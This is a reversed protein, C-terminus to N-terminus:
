TAGRLAMLGLVQVEMEARADRPKEAYGNVVRTGKAQQPKVIKYTKRVKELDCAQALWEDAFEVKTGEIAGTLHEEVSEKTVSDGDGVKVVILKQSSDQIGFRRFADGINNNPSLCFVVESQVNNSKLRDHLHDNLARFCSTLLHRRSLITTADIFAYNFAQNGALLQQRLFSANQVDEYCTVYIVLESPLHALHIEEVMNAM